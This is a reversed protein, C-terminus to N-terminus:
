DRMGRTVRQRRALQTNQESVSKRRSRRPRTYTYIPRWNPIQRSMCKGTNSIQRIQSGAPVTRLRGAAALVVCGARFLGADATDTAAAEEDLEAARGAAAGCRISPASASSVAHPARYRSSTDSLPRPRRRPSMCDRRRTHPNSTVASAQLFQNSRYRRSYVAFCPM